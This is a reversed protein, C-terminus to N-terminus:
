ISDGKKKKTKKSDLNSSYSISYSLCHKIVDEFVLSPTFFAVHHFITKNFKYQFM